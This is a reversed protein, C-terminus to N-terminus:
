LSEETSSKNRIGLNNLIGQIKASIAQLNCKKEAHKM